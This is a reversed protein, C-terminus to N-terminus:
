QFQRRITHTPWRVCLLLLLTVTSFHIVLNLVVSIRLYATSYYTSIKSPHCDLALAFCRPLAMCIYAQRSISHGTPHIPRISPGEYQRVLLVELNPLPAHQAGYISGVRANIAIHPVISSVSYGRTSLMYIPSYRPQRWPCVTHSPAPCPPLISLFRYEFRM